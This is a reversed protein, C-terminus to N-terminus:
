LLRCAPFGYRSTKQMIDGIEKFNALNLYDWRSKIRMYEPWSILSYTGAIFFDDTCWYVQQKTM